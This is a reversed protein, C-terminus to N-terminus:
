EFGGNGAARVPAQRPDWESEAWQQVAGHFEFAMEGLAGDRNKDIACGVMRIGSRKDDASERAPWLFMVVDADQEIAGSDRLDGLGPRKSARGEVARNLQSLAIVPIDMETSLAKLGRTLEEIQLNRNDTKLDSGCLQVYDIVLAALKPVARAKRRITALRQAPEDDILFPMGRFREVADSLRGWEADSLSGDSLARLRIGGTRAICRDAVRGEPMEQSLFLVPRQTAEAISMGIDASFSSKGVSPRAAVVYLGARLGGGLLEDLMPKGTSIGPPINGAALDSYRDARQVALAVLSKPERTRRFKGLEAFSAQAQDVLTAADGAKFAECAIEDAQAIVARLVARSAVIEAYHRVNRIGTVGAVLANLYVLGGADEAHGAARLREFVTVVDAPKCATVMEAVVTWVLGHQRAYFSRETLLDAVADFAANDLLLCGLVHQEAATSHPPVRLQDAPIDAHNM